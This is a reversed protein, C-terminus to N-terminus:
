LSKKFMTADPEAPDDEAPRDYKSRKDTPSVELGTVIQEGTHYCYKKGYFVHCERKNILGEHLAIEDEISERPIGAKERPMQILDWFITEGKVGYSICQEIVRAKRKEEWEQRFLKDERDESFYHGLIQM